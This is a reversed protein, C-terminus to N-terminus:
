PEKTCIDYVAGSTPGIICIDTPTGIVTDKGGGGDVCNDSGYDVITDVNKTGIILVHSLTNSFIGSGTVISNLTLSSCGAPILEAMTRAHASEGVNSGPVTNSATFSTALTIVVALVFLGTIIRVVTSRLSRHHPTVVTVTKKLQEKADNVLTASVTNTDISQSLRTIYHHTDDDVAYTRHGNHIQYLVPKELYQALEVLQTFEPVEIQAAGKSLGLSVVPIILVQFQDAILEEDSAVVQRRRLFDHLVAGILALVALVFGLLRLQPIEIDYKAISVENAVLHPISGPQVPHLTSKLASDASSPIYTAGPPLPAVPVDLTVVTQGISFPLVPSFTENIPKGGVTGIIHVVPQVDASYSVGAIGTQTSISNIQSYLLGLPAPSAISANDGTFATNPKLVAFKQWSNAQSLLLGNLAITGRIHHPLASTFRYQFSLNVTNVLSAYIPQGTTVVGSPYIISPANVHASYSFNGTQQYADPMPALRHSPRSFGIALFLIALSLLVVLSVLTAIPGELYPQRQSPAAQQQLTSSTTHQLALKRHTLIKALWGKRIPLEHRRSDRRGTTESGTLVLAMVALGAILAAHVPKGFWGLVAGAEPIHFWLKGVLESRTAYGPDVFNNNDGKFFYNGNQIL